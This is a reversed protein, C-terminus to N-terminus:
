ELRGAFTLQRIRRTMQPESITELPVQQRPLPHASSDCLSLAPCPVCCWLGECRAAMPWQWLEVSMGPGEWLQFGAQLWTQAWPPAAPAGQVGRSLLPTVSDTCLCACWHGTVASLVPLRADGTPLFVLEEEQSLHQFLYGPFTTAAEDKATDLALSSPTQLLRTNSCGQRCCLTQFM